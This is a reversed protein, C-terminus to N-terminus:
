ICGRTRGTRMPRDFLSIKTAPSKQALIQDVVIRLLTAYKRAIALFGVIVSKSFM